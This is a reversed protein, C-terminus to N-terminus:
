ECLTYIIFCWIITGLTSPILYSQRDNERKSFKWLILGILPVLFAIIKVITNGHTANETLDANCVPCIKSESPIMAGCYECKRLDTNM